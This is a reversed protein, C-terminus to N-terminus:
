SAGCRSVVLSGLRCTSRPPHDSSCRHARPRPRSSGCRSPQCTSCSWTSRSATEIRVVSSSGTDLSAALPLQGCIVRTASLLDVAALPVKRVTTRGSAARARVLAEPPNPLADCRLPVSLRVTKWHQPEVKAPLPTVSQWGPVVVSLLTVERPGDNRLTLSSEATTYRKGSLDPGTSDYTHVDLVVANAAARERVNARRWDRIQISSWAAVVIVAVTAALLRSTRRSLPEQGQLLDGTVTARHPDVITIPPAPRADKM